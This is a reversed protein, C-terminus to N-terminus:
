SRNNYFYNLKRLQKLNQFDIKKFRKKFFPFKYKSKKNVLVLVDNSICELTFISYLNEESFITFKTRKQLEKLTYPNLPLKWGRISAVYAAGIDAAEEPTATFYIFNKDHKIYEM